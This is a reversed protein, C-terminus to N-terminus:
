MTYPKKPQIYANLDQSVSSGRGCRPYVHDNVILFIMAFRAGALRRLQRRPETGREGVIDLVVLLPATAELPRARTKSLHSYIEHVFTVGDVNPIPDNYSM